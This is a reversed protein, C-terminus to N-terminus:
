HTVEASIKAFELAQELSSAYWAAPSCRMASGNTKRVVAGSVDRLVPIRYYKENFNGTGDATPAVCWPECFTAYFPFKLPSRTYFM